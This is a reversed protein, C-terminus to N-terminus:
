SFDQEITSLITTGADQTTFTLRDLANIGTSLSIGGGGATKYAASLTLTRSGTGDQSLLVTMYGGKGSAPFNNITLSSINGTLIGHQVHGDVYDVVVAGSINGLDKVTEAADVIEADDLKFGGFDYPQTRVNLIGDITTWNGNLQPDGWLNEDIPSDFLPLNFGYNATFNPM